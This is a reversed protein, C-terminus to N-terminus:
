VSSFFTPVRDAGNRTKFAPSWDSQEVIRNAGQENNGVYIHGIVIELTVRGYSTQTMELIGSVANIIRDIIPTAEIKMSGTKPVQLNTSRRFQRSSAESERQAKEPVPQSALQLLGLKRLVEQGPAFEDEKNTLVTQANICQAAPQSPTATIPLFDLPEPHDILAGRERYKPITPITTPEALTIVATDEEASTVVEAPMYPEAIPPPQPVISTEDNVPDPTPQIQGKPVRKSKMYDAQPTTAPPPMARSAANKVPIANFPDEPQLPINETWATLKNVQAPVLYDHTKSEKSGIGLNKDKEGGFAPYVYHSWPHDSTNELPPIITSRIPVRLWSGSSSNWKVMHIEAYDSMFNPSSLLIQRDIVRDPTHFHFRFNVENEPIYFDFSTSGSTRESESNSNAPHPIHLKSVSVYSKSIVVLKGIAKDVDEATDGKITIKDKSKEVVITCNTLKEVARLTQTAFEESPSSDFVRM